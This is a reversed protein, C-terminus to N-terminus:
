IGPPLPRDSQDVVEIVEDARFTAHDRGLVKTVRGGSVLVADVSMGDTLRVGIRHVGMRFEPLLRVEAAVAAPLVDEVGCYDWMVELQPSARPCWGCPSRNVPASGSRWM